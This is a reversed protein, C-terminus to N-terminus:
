QECHASVQDLAGLVLLELDLAWHAHGSLHQANGGALGRATLAGVCVVAELHPSNALLMYSKPKLVTHMIACFVIVACFFRTPHVPATPLEIKQLSCSPQPQMETTIQM